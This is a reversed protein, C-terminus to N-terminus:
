LMRGSGIKYCANVLARYSQLSASIWGGGSAGGGHQACNARLFYMTGMMAAGMAPSVIRAERRVQLARANV